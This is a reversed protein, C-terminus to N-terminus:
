PFIKMTEEVEAKCIPCRSQIAQKCLDRDCSILHRCPLCLWHRRDEMCIICLLEEAADTAKRNSSQESHEPRALDICASSPKAVAADETASASHDTWSLTPLMENPHQEDLGPPPLLMPSPSPFAQLPSLTAHPPWASSSASMWYQSPLVPITWPYCQVHLSSPDGYIISSNASHSSHWQAAAHQSLNRSNRYQTRPLTAAGRRHSYRDEHDDRWHQSAAKYAKTM